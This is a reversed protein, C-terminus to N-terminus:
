GRLHAPEDQEMDIDLGLKKMVFRRPAKGSVVICGRAKLENNAARIIAYAKTAKIGWMEMVEYATIYQKNVM